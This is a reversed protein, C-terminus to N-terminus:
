GRALDACATRIEKKLERYAEPSIMGSLRDPILELRQRARRASAEAEREVDLRSILQGRKEALELEQMDARASERRAHHEALSQTAAKKRTRAKPRGNVSNRPKRLDTTRAWERDAEVPDVRGGVLEIRGDRAAKRVAEQSVGRRRAYEAQTLFDASM